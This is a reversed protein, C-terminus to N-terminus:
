QYLLMKLDQTPLSVATSIDPRTTDALWNLSGAVSQYKLCLDNRAETLM